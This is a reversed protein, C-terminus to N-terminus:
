VEKGNSVIESITGDANFITTKTMALTGQELIESISGDENFITTKTVEGNTEVISGDANFTTTKNDFGITTGLADKNMETGEQVMASVLDISVTGDTNNTIKYKPEEGLIEDKPFFM